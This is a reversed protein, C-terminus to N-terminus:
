QLMGGSWEVEIEFPEGAAERRRIFDPATQPFLICSLYDEETRCIQGMSERFREMEPELLDAPRVTVLPEDGLAMKRVDPDVTGPLKGYEGKLLAKSERTFSKYREGLLVNLVAQSGVIQSTPTVLPPYGFDKRVKPIERLVLDM